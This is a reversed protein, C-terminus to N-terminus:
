RLRRMQQQVNISFLKFDVYTHRRYFRHGRFDMYLGVSLPLWFGADSKPFSVFRYEFVQHYLRLRIKPIAEALDMEMHVLQYSDALIWAIGRFRVNYTKGGIIIVSMNCACDPREEFRIQWASQDRWNGLGECSMRFNTVYNPHFVLVGSPMNATVVDDPSQNPNIDRSRFEESSMYGDSGEKLSFVYNFKHVDPRLLNGSRGVNEHEIIETASIRDLNHVLDQIQTGTRSIVDPLSCSISPAAPPPITDIDPPVWRDRPARTNEASTVGDRPVITPSEAPLGQKMAMEPRAIAAYAEVLSLLALGFVSLRRYHIM